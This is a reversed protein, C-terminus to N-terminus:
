YKLETKINLSGQAMQTGFLRNNNIFSLFNKKKLIKFKVQVDDERILIEAKTNIHDKKKVSPVDDLQVKQKYLYFVQL